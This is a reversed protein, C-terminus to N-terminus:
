KFVIQFLQLAKNKEEKTLLKGQLSINMETTFLNELSINGKTDNSNSENNLINSLEGQVVTSLIKQVERFEEVIKNYIDIENNLHHTVEDIRVVESKYTALLMNIDDYKEDYKKFNNSIKSLTERWNNLLNLSFDLDYELDNIKKMLSNFDMNMLEEFSIDGLHAITHLREIGPVSKDNEWKSVLSRNAGGVLEGFEDMSKGIKMRIAKIKQGLTPGM